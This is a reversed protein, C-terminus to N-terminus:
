WYNPDDNYPNSPKGGFIKLATAAIGVGAAVIKVWDTKESKRNERDRLYYHYEDRTNYNNKRKGM